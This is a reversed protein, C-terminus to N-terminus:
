RPSNCSNCMIGLRSSLVPLARGGASGIGGVWVGVSVVLRDLMIGKSGGGSSMDKDTSGIGLISGGDNNLMDKAVGGNTPPSGKWIIELVVLVVVVVVLGM